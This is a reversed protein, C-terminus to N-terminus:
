FNTWNIGHMLIYINLFMKVKQVNFAREETEVTSTCDNWEYVRSVFIRRPLNRKREFKAKFAIVTINTKM